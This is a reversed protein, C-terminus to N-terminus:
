GNAVVDAAAGEEAQEHRADVSDIEQEEQKRESKRKQRKAGVPFRKAAGCVGCELVLVDAHPKKGGRSLNEIRKTSTQGEILVTSCRKCISQKINAHLRIQSKLATQRLHTTLHLPLGGNHPGNFLALQRSLSLERVDGPSTGQNVEHGPHVPKTTHAPGFATGNESEELRAEEPGAVSSQSGLSATPRGQGQLTLYTAAQQLYSIRAHLHKNPVGSKTKDKAM